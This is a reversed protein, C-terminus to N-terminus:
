IKFILILSRVATIFLNLYLSSVESGAFYLSGTNDTIAILGRGNDVRRAIQTFYSHLVFDNRAARIYTM